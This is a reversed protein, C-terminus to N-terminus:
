SEFTLIRICIGEHAYMYVNYIYMFANCKVFQVAGVGDKVAEEELYHATVSGEASNEHANLGANRINLKHTRINIGNGKRRHAGSEM